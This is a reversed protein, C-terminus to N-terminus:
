GNRDRRRDELRCNTKGSESDSDGYYELMVLGLM